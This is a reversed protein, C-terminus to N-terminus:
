ETSSHLPEVYFYEHEWKSINFEGTSSFIGYFPDDVYRANGVWSLKEDNLYIEFGDHYVRVQWINWDDHQSWRDVWTFPVLEVGYANGRGEDGGRHYDIRKLNYKLYDGGWVINLRYYHYFCGNADGAHERDIYCFTGGNAGFVIGYSAMNAKNVIRTKMTIQYPPEPAEYMPSFIGFDFRDEVSTILRGRSYYSKILALDPSSTRRSSWGTEPNDFDDYLASAVTVSVMNSWPGLGWRNYARVRYYYQGPSQDIVQYATVMSTYNVAADFSPTTAEQLTYSIVPTGWVSPHWQLEYDALNPLKDVGQLAPPGPLPPWRRVVLPLYIYGTMEGQLRVYDVFAGRGVYGDGNSTFRFAIYYCEQDGLTDLFISEDWHWAGTQSSETWVTTFAEGDQSVLVSLSDGAVVDLWWDFTLYLDWGIVATPRDWAYIMWTDLNDPYRTTETATLVNGGPWVSQKGLTSIYTEEAWLYIGGDIESQDVLRWDELESPTEFNWVKLDTRSPWDNREPVGHEAYVSGVFLCLLWIGILPYVWGTRVGISSLMSKM